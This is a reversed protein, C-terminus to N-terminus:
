LLSLFLFLNTIWIMRHSCTSAWISLFSTKLYNHHYRVCPNRLRNVRSHYTTTLMISWPSARSFYPLLVQCKFQTQSFTVATPWWFFSVHKLTQSVISSHTNWSSLWLYELSSELWHLPGFSVWFSDLVKLYTSLMYNRVVFNVFPVTLFFDPTM